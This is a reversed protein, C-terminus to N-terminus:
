VHRLCSRTGLQDWLAVVLQIGDRTPAGTEDIWNRELAKHEPAQRPDDLHCVFSIIHSKIESQM